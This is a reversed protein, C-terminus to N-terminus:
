FGTRDLLAVIKLTAARLHEVRAQVTLGYSPKWILAIISADEMICGAETLLSRIQQEDMSSGIGVLVRLDMCLKAAYLQLKGSVQFLPSAHHANASSDIFSARQEALARRKHQATIQAPAPYEVQVANGDIM